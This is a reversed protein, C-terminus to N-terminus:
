RTASWWSAAQLKLVAHKEQPSFHLITLIAALTQQRGSADALTLFKYIINKLYEMNAGERNQDRVLKALQGRLQTAEEEHREGNAVLTAQLRHLEEELRHKHRRLGGLEVEKRAFHEAYLLLTPENPAVRRLAQGIVDSQSPSGPSDLQEEATKDAEKPGTLVAARLKELEQDKEDLLAMTRERQKHLQAELTMLNDRQLTELREVEQKHALQLAAAAAQQEELQQRHQAEAEDSQIRMNIYKEKLEALQDRVEELERTQCGDKANKGKLVLQARQKYREFEERVQRLEQQHQWASSQEERAELEAATRLEPESSRQAALVLLKQLKQLKEKLLSADLQSEDMSIDVGTRSSAAIALTKNETDLQLIRERLRQAVQQDRQRSKESSGLVGSLESVRQELDAVRLEAAQARECAREEADRAQFVSLVANACTLM